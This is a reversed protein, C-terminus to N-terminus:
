GDKDIFPLLEYLESKRQVPKGMEINKIEFHYSDMQVIRCLTMEARHLEESNLGYETSEMAINQCKLKFRLVWAM